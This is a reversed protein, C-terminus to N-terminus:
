TEDTSEVHQNGFHHINTRNALRNHDKLNFNASLLLKLKKNIPRIMCNTHKNANDIYHVLQIIRPHM